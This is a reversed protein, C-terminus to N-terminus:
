IVLEGAPVPRGLRYGQGADCGLERLLQEQEATEIGEATVQMGLAHCLEVTHRLVIAAGPSSVLEAALKV